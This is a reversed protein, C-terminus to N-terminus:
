HSIGKNFAAQLRKADELPNEFEMEVIYGGYAKAYASGYMGTKLGRKKMEGVVKERISCMVDLYEEKCDNSKIFVFVLKQQSGFHPELRCEVEGRAFNQLLLSKLKGM